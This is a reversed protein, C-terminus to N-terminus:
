MSFLKKAIADGPHIGFERMELHVQDMQKRISEIQKIGLPKLNDDVVVGGFNAVLENACTFADTMAESVDSIQPIDIIITLGKILSPDNDINLIPRQDKDGLSYLERSAANYAHFLGDDGLILGKESIFDKVSQMAVSANDSFLINIGIMIDVKACFDEITKAREFLEKERYSRITLNLNSAFRTLVAIVEQWKTETLPGSRSSIPMIARLYRYTQSADFKAIDIWLESDTEYVQWSVKGYLGKLSAIADMLPRYQLDEDSSFLVSWEFRSDLDEDNNVSPADQNKRDVMNQRDEDHASFRIVPEGENDDYQSLGESQSVEDKLLKKRHRYEQIRGAFLFVVVLAVGVIILYIQLSTM